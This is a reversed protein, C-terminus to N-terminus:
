EDFRDSLTEIEHRVSVISRRISRITDGYELAEGPRMRRMMADTQADINAAQKDIRELAQQTTNM